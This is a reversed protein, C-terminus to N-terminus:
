RNQVNQHHRALDGRSRRLRCDLREQPLVRKWRHYLDKRMRKRM